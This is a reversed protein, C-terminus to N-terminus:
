EQAVKFYGNNNAIAFRSHVLDRVSNKRDLGRVRQGVSELERLRQGVVM